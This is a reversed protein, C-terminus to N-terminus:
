AAEKPTSRAEVRADIEQAKAKCSETDKYTWAWRGFAEDSPFAESEPVEKGSPATWQLIHEPIRLTVPTTQKPQTMCQIYLLVRTAWYGWTEWIEM